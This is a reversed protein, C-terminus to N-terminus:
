GALAELLRDVDEDTNYLHFSVRVGGARVAARIGARELAEMAGPQEPVAIIASDGPPLDLGSRVRDALGVCHAEVATMDLSALHSMAEAAGVLIPWAPSTDFRRASEALRLPLGYISSWPQEGAYWNATHPTIREIIRDGLAVWAAGRPSLLWKYSGGVVVDAWALDVQKWGLAQTVDIVVTTDTSARRLADLDVTFGDPSAVLSAAVLDFEGARDAFEERAVETVRVRRSAQAAFPFSVSTFEGALVGVSTGDPISAAVLGLLAGVSGGMAVRDIPAGTLTAFAARARDIETDLNPPQLTGSSWADTFEALAALTAESPLGFTASNLFGAAARYDAGFAHRM